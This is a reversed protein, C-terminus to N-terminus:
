YILSPTTFFFNFYRKGSVVCTVRVLELKGKVLKKGEERETFKHNESRDEEKEGEM